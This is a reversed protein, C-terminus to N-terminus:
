IQSDDYKHKKFAAILGRDKLVDCLEKTRNLEVIYVLYIPDLLRIFVTFIGKCYKCRYYKCRSESNLDHNGTIRYFECGMNPKWAPYESLIKYVLNRNPQVISKRINCATYTRMWEDTMQDYDIEIYRMEESVLVTSAVHVTNPM